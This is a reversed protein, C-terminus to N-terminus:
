IIRVFHEQGLRIFDQPTIWSGNDYCTIGLAQVYRRTWESCIDRNEEGLRKIDIGLKRAIAIRPLLLFDYKIKEDALAMISEIASNINATYKGIPRLIAVEEYKMCRESLFDPRVGKENSDIIFFRGLSEYVVGIHNYRASDFFQIARALLHNGRFLMIDGSQIKPRVNENYFQRTM